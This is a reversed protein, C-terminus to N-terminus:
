REPPEKDGQGSPHRRDRKKADNLLREFDASLGLGDGNSLHENFEQRDQDFKEDPTKKESNKRLFFLVVSVLGSLLGTMGM